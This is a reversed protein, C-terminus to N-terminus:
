CPRWASFLLLGSPVSLITLPYLSSPTLLPTLHSLLSTLLSILSSILSYIYNISSVYCILDSFHLTSNFLTFYNRFFSHLTATPLFTISLTILNHSTLSNKMASSSLLSTFLTIFNNNLPLIMFYDISLTVFYYFEIPYFPRLLVCILYM